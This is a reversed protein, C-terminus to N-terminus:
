PLSKKPSKRSTERKKQISAPSPIVPTNGDNKWNKGKKTSWPEEKQALRFLAPL